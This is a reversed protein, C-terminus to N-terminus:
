GEVRRVAPRRKPAPRGSAEQACPFDNGSKYLICNKSCAPLLNSVLMCMKTCVIVIKQVIHYCIKYLTVFNQVFHYCIKYLSYVSIGSFRRSRSPIPVAAQRPQIFQAQGRGPQGPRIRCLGPLHSFQIM